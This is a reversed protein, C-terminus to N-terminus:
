ATEEVWDSTPAFHWREVTDWDARQSIPTRVYAAGGHDIIYSCFRAQMSRWLRDGEAFTIGEPQALTSLRDAGRTYFTWEDVTLEYHRGTSWDIRDVGTASGSRWVGWERNGSVPHYGDEGIRVTSVRFETSSAQSCVVSGDDINFAAFDKALMEIHLVSGLADGDFWREKEEDNFPSFECIETDLLKKQRSGVLFRRFLELLSKADHRGEPGWAETNWPFRHIVIPYYDLNINGRAHEIAQVQAELPEEAIRQQVAAPPRFSILDGWAGYAKSEVLATWRKSLGLLSGTEGWADDGLNPFVIRCRAFPVRNVRIRGTADLRGTSVLKGSPDRIEFPEDPVPEGDADTLEFSIWNCEFPVPDVPLSEATAQGSGYLASADGDVLHLQDDELFVLDVRRDTGAPYGPLDLAARPWAEGAAVVAHVKLSARQQELRPLSPDLMDRLTAECVDFFAEFDAATIPGSAAISARWEVNYERRFEDLASATMAGLDNDIGGPDCAWGWVFATWALLTQVDDVAYHGICHAAWGARDGVLFLRVNEARDRSVTENVSASGVADAHGVIALREGREHGHRLVARVIALGSIGVSGEGAEIQAPPTPLFIVRENGFNIDEAQVLSVRHPPPEVLAVHEPDISLRLPDTRTSAIAIGHAPRAAAGLAPGRANVVEGDLTALDSLLPLADLDPPDLPRDFSRRVLLLDGRALGRALREFAEDETSGFGDTSRWHHRLLVRARAEDSVLVVQSRSVLELGLSWGGSEARSRPGEALKSGAWHKAM